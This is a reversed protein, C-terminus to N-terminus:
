LEISLSFFHKLIVLIDQSSWLLTIAMEFDQFLLLVNCKIICMWRVFPLATFKCSLFIKLVRAGM